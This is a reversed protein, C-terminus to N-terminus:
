FIRDGALSSRWSTSRNQSARERMLGDYIDVADDVGCLSVSANVDVVYQEGDRELVDVEFVDLGMTESIEDAMSVLDYGPLIEEGGSGMRDSEESLEVARVAEGVGYIKLIRDSDVFRQVVREGEFDPEGDVVYVDHGNDTHEFRPKVVYKGDDGRIDDIDQAIEDVDAYAFDPVDLDMEELASLCAYRDNASTVGEHTNLTPVGSEEAACLDEMSEKRRKAMHYLDYEEFDVDEHTEEPDFVDVDAWDSAADIVEQKISRGDQQAYRDYFDSVAIRYRGQSM